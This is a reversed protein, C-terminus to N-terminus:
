EDDDFMSKKKIVKIETDEEEAAESEDEESEDEDDEEEEEDESENADESSEDEDEEETITTLEQNNNTEIEEISSPKDDDNIIFQKAENKNISSLPQSQVMNPIYQTKPIAPAVFYKYIVFIVCILLIIILVGILANKYNFESVIVENEKVKNVKPPIVKTKKASEYTNLMKPDLIRPIIDIPEYNPNM